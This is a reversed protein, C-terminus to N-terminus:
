FRDLKASVRLIKRADAARVRGDANVDAATYSAYEEPQWLDATIRLALRADAATLQGNLDVDGIMIDRRPVVRYTFDATFAGSRVTVPYEGVTEADIEHELTYDSVPLSAGSNYVAFVQLNSFSLASGAFSGVGYGVDLKLGTQLLPLVNYDFMVYRGMYYIRATHRGIEFGDYVIDVDTVTETKGNIEAHAIFRNPRDIFAGRIINPYKM